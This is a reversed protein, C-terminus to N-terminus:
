ARRSSTTREAQALAVPCPEIGTHRCVNWDCHRCVRLVAQPSDVMSGLLRAVIRILRLRWPFPLTGVLERVTGARARMAELTHAGGLETLHLRWQRQDHPYRTRQVLGDAILSAVVQSAGPMTIGLAEALECTRLGRGRGVWQLAAVATPSCRAAAAMREQVREGLTVALAGLLNELRDDQRREWPISDREDERLWRPSM